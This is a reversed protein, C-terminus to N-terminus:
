VPLDAPHLLLREAADALLPKALLFGQVLDVREARLFALQDTTEVGEALTALGLNRGLGVLTRIMADSEASDGISSTFSRDIKLCNVPFQQLYALSSYGTGFDDIAISVGLAHLERLRRTTEAVNDMLATETIELTLAHPALGSEGLAESVHDVVCDWDLQRGSVNVSIRVDCGARRWRATQQCATHLVWRGVDVILGCSELLPIFENPGVLGKTPHRWRLLAEFGGLTVDATTYVPQYVLFFEQRALASRLDVELQYRRQIVAQLEPRFREYCNRGRSKAEDVAVEAERLLERATSRPGVAIGVSASVVTPPAGEVLHFPQRVVELVREAVLEPAATAAPDDILLVFEDGGLRAVTDVGPLGTRLRDAVGALLQDGHGHGLADNVARFGDLDVQLALCSTGARRARAQMCETRDLVLIRNPLGTLADHLSQHRLRDSVQEVEAHTAALNRNLLWLRTMVLVFSLACMAAVLSSAGPHGSLVLPGVLLAVGLFAMRGPTLRAHEPAQAREMTRASPHLGAAGALVGSLIWGVDSFGGVAFAGDTLLMVYNVDAVLLCTMAGVLLRIAPTVRVAVVFRLLAAFLILDMCPYSTAAIITTVPGGRSDVLPDVVYAWLPIAGNVAIIAADLLNGRRDPERERPIMSRIALAYFPYSSLWLGDAVSPFRYAHGTVFPTALYVVDSLVALCLAISLYRWVPPADPPSRRAAVITTIAAGLPAALFVPLQGASDAPLLPFTLALLSGVGAYLLWATRRTPRRARLRNM